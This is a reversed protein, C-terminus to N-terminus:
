GFIVWQQTEEDWYYRNGDNPYPIPAEWGNTEPNLIWSPFPQPTSPRLQTEILGVNHEDDVIAIIKGQIELGDTYRLVKQAEPDMEGNSQLYADWPYGMKACLSDHWSHFSEWSEWEYWKVMIVFGM